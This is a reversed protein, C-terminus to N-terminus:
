KKQAFDIMEKMASIQPRKSSYVIDIPGGVEYRAYTDYRVVSTHQHSAGRNDTYSYVLKQRRTASRGGPVSRKEVVTGKTEVGYKTLETMEMARSIFVFALGGFVLLVVFFPLLLEIM